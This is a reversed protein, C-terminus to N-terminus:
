HDWIRVCTQGWYELASFSSYINWWKRYDHSSNSGPKHKKIYLQCFIASCNCFHLLSCAFTIFYTWYTYFVTIDCIAHGLRGGWKLRSTIKTYDRYLYEPFIYHFHQFESGRHPFWRLLIQFIRRIRFNQELYIVLIWIFFIFFLKHWFIFSIM